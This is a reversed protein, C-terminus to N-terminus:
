RKLKFKDLAVDLKQQVQLIETHLAAREREDSATEIRRRLSAIERIMEVEPPTYGANRLIRYAMRYKSPVQSDDELDLPKGYGPLRRVEGSKEANRVWGGIIDDIGAM